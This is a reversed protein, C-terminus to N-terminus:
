RESQYARFGWGMWALIFFVGGLPTIAGLIPIDLLVLVYLSGSFVLIGAIFLYAIWSYKRSEKQHWFHFMILAFAHYMQYRVATEFVSLRADSVLEKLGHAGFAGLAVSLAAFICGLTLFNMQIFYSTLPLPYPTNFAFNVFKSCVVQEM